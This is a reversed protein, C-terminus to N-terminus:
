RKDKVIEVNNFISHCYTFGNAYEPRQQGLILDSLFKNHQEKMVSFLNQKSTDFRSFLKGFFPKHKLQKMIYELIRPYEVRKSKNAM